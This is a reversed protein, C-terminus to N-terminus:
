FDERSFYNLVERSFYNLFECGIRLLLVSYDSMWSQRTATIMVVQASEFHNLTRRWTITHHKLFLVVQSHGQTQSLQAADCRAQFDDSVQNAARRVPAAAHEILLLDAPARPVCLSASERVPM